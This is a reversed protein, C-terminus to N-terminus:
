YTRFSGAAHATRPLPVKVAGHRFSDHGVPIGTPRLPTRAADSPAGCLLVQLPTLSALNNVDAMLAVM